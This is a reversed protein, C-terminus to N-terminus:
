PQFMSMARVSEVVFWLGLLLFPLAILIGKWRSLGIPDYKGFAAREFAHYGFRRFKPMLKRKGTLRDRAAQRQRHHYLWRFFPRLM